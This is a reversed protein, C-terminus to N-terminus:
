PFLQVHIVCLHVKVLSDLKEDLKRMKKIANQIKSDDQGFEMSGGTRVGEAGCEVGGDFAVSTSQSASKTDHSVDVDIDSSTQNGENPADQTQKRDDRSHSLIEDSGLMDVNSVKGSCPESERDDVDDFNLQDRSDISSSVSGTRFDGIENHNDEHQRSSNKTDSPTSRHSDLSEVDDLTGLQTHIKESLQQIQNFLEHASVGGNDRSITIFQGPHSRVLHTQRSDLETTTIDEEQPSSTDDDDPLLSQHHPLSYTSNSGYYPATHTLTFTHTKLVHLM